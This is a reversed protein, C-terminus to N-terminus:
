KKSFGMKGLVKGLSWYEGNCFALPKMKGADIKGKYEASIAVAVIEGLFLHHSISYDDIVKIVKCEFNVPCEKILPAKVISAPIPTLNCAEFKDEDGGSVMGCHDLAKAQAESPVNVVFEGTETILGYSFRSPRICIGLIPPDSSLIGVWALSIINNKTGDKDCCSVMVAPVPFLEAAPKKFIKEGEM